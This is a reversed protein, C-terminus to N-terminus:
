IKKFVGNILVHGGFILDLKRELSAIKEHIQILQEASSATEKAEMDFTKHRIFPNSLAIESIKDTLEKVDEPRLNEIIM